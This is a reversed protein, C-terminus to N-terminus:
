DFGVTLAKTEPKFSWRMYESVSSDFKILVKKDNGKIPKLEQM